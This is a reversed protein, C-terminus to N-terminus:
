VCNNGVHLLSTTAQLASMWYDPHPRVIEERVIHGVGPICAIIRHSALSIDLCFHTAHKSVTELDQSAWRASVCSWVLFIVEMVLATMQYICTYMYVYFIQMCCVHITKSNLLISFFFLSLFFLFLISIKTNPKRLGTAAACPPCPPGIAGGLFLMPPGRGGGGLYCPPAEGGLFELRQVRAIYLSTSIIGPVILSYDTTSIIFFLEPIIPLNGRLLRIAVFTLTWCYQNPSFRPQWTDVSDKVYRVLLWPLGIQLENADSNM